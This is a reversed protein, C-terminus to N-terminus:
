LFVRPTSTFLCNAYKTIPTIANITKPTIIKEAHIIHPHIVRALVDIENLSELGVDNYFIDHRIYKFAFHKGNINEVEYVYGYSGKGRQQVPSFGCANAQQMTKLDLVPDFDDAM